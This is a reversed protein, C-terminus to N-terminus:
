QIVWYYFAADRKNPTKNRYDLTFGTPTSTVYYECDAATANAPTIHVAPLSSYPADLSYTVSIRTFGFTNNEGSMALEGKVNTLPVINAAGIIFSNVTGSAILVNLSPANSQESIFVGNELRINGDKVDLKQQPATTGIGINVAYAGVGGLVMSNSTTVKANNGIAAVNSLGPDATANNGMVFYNTALGPNTLGAKNGIFLNDTGGILFTGAENGVATNASGSALNLLSLQGIGTNQLSNDGINYGALAGVLTNRHSFTGLAEGARNGILTNRIAGTAGVGARYGFTTEGRADNTIRGAKENNIRFNLPLNDRTGVYNTGDVTGSNGQLAWGLGNFPVLSPKGNLDTTYVLGPSGNAMKNLTIAGDTVTVVGGNTITADGSMAVDAPFNAPNGVFIHGDTLIPSSNAAACDLTNFMGDGNTDEAPDNVGNLNTDWCNVGNPGAPGTKGAPGVVVGANISTGDSLFVILEGTDDTIKTNIVSIGQLSNIFDQITKNENAPDKQWIEFASLGDTGAPGAPGALGQPGLVKGVNATTNDSYSIILNGTADMQTGNISRGDAGAPGPPGIPGNEAYKAYLSYPVSLLQTLGALTYNYGGEPDVEVKLYKPSMGWPISGFNGKTDLAGPSGIAVSYLGVANTKVSRVEYYHSLGNLGQDQITLRLTILQNIIPNGKTDRLAGQYNIQQPVQAFVQQLQCMLLVLLLFKIPQILLKM